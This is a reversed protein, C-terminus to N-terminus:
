KQYWEGGSNQYWHNAPGKEAIMKARRQGVLSPPAGQKKGIARYVAERDKNEEAIMAQKPKQATRYELLGANNEGILGQDKLTNIEPIRAAMREKISASHAAPVVLFFCGLLVFFISCRTLNM